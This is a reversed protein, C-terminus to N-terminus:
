YKWIVSFVNGLNIIMEKQTFNEGLWCGEPPINTLSCLVILNGVFNYKGPFNVLQIFIERKLKMAVWKPLM